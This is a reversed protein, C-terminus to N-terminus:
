KLRLQITAQVDIPNNACEISFAIREGADFDNGSFDYAQSTGAPPSISDVQSGNNYLKLTVAGPTQVFRVYIDLVECDQVCVFENGIDLSTSPASLPTLPMFYETSAASLRGNCPVFSTIQSPLTITENSSLGSRAILEVYNTDGVANRLRPGAAAAPYLTSLQVGIGEALREVAQVAASQIAVGAGPDSGTDTGNDTDLRDGDAVTIGTGVEQVNFLEVDYEASNARFAFRYPVYTKSDYLYMLYPFMETAYLTGIQIFTTVNRQTMHQQCLMQIVEINDLASVKGWNSGTYSDDSTLRLSGRTATNTVQDGIIADPLEYIDHATNDSTANYLISDITNTDGDGIYVRLNDVSVVADAFADSTIGSSTTGDAEYAIVDVTIDIGQADAPLAPTVFAVPQNVVDGELANVPMSFLEWRDTDIQTWSASALQTTFVDVPDGDAFQTSFAPLVSAVRKLYYDGVKFEVIVEYRLFREDGTRTGDATQDIRLFGTVFLQEGSPIVFNDNSATLTDFDAEEWTDTIVPFNGRFDYKRYVARVPNLHAEEWGALIKPDGAGSDITKFNVPTVASGASSGSKTFRDYTVTISDQYRHRPLLIWKGNSQMLTLMLASCIAELIEYTSYYNLLGPVATDYFEEHQFGLDTPVDVLGNGPDNYIFYEGWWLFADSGGWFDTTRTKTLCNIVHDLLSDNGTYATGDDNYEIAKLTAIDDGATLTVKAPLSINEVETQESFIVGAWYLDDDGDPDSYIAVTLDGEDRSLLDDLFDNMETSYDDRNYFEIVCKSGMIPQFLDDDNGDYTLTFAEGCLRIETASTAHQEDHIEVRYVEEKDNQFEGYFRLAM